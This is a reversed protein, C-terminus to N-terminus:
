NELSQVRFFSAPVTPNIVMSTNTTVGGLNLWINTVPNTQEQVQYRLNRGRWSLRIQGAERTAATILPEGFPNKAVAVTGDIRGYAFLRADPSFSVATAGTYRGVVGGDGNYIFYPAGGAIEEDFSRVRQLTGSGFFKLANGTPFGVLL